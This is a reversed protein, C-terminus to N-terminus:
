LTALLQAATAVAIVGPAKGAIGPLGIPCTVHALEAESFGRAALRKSFQAWKTASGILGVFPLDGRQRQRTLCALLVAFDEAHSFSMILVRSSPALDLVADEVQSAHECVARGPPQQLADVRSDIWRVAFPLNALVTLLARGVHGAGFVAVPTLDEGGAFLRPADPKSVLEFRLWVVGGCCQGLAPGLAFRKVVAEPEPLALLERAFATAQHELNGGGVTGLTAVTGVTAGSFVAMWAGAERPVSGEVAQVTVWVAPGLALRRLFQDQPSECQVVQVVPM